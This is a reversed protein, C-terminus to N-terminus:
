QVVFLFSFTCVKLKEDLLECETKWYQVESVSGFEREASLESSTMPRHETADVSSSAVSSSVIFRNLREVQSSLTESEVTKSRLQM